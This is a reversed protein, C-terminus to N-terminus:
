NREETGDEFERRTTREEDIRFIRMKQCTMKEHGRWM